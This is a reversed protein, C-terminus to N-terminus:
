SHKSEAYILPCQNEKFARYYRKLLNDEPLSQLYTFLFVMVGFCVAITATLIAGWKLYILSATFLGVSKYFMIAYIPLAITWGFLALTSLLTLTQRKQNKWLERLTLLYILVVGYLLVGGFFGIMKGVSSWAGEPIGNTAILWLILGAITSLMTALIVAGITTTTLWFAKCLNITDTWTSKWLKRMLKWYPNNIDYALRGDTTVHTRFFSFGLMTLAALFTLPSVTLSFFSATGLISSKISKEQGALIWINVTDTGYVGFVFVCISLISALTLLLRTKM